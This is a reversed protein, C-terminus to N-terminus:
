EDEVEERTVGRAVLVACARAIALQPTPADVQVVGAGSAGFYVTWEDDDPYGYTPPFLGSDQAWRMPLAELLPGAHLWSTSYKPWMNYLSTMRFEGGKLPAREQHEEPHKRSLPTGGTFSTSSQDSVRLYTGMWKACIRDLQEGAEMKRAQEETFESM